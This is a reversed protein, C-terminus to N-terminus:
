GESEKSSLYLTYKCQTHLMVLLVDESLRWSDDTELSDGPPALRGDRGDAWVQSRLRLLPPIDILPPSHEGAGHCRSM